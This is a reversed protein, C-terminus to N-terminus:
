SSTKLEPTNWKEGCQGAGRSRARWERRLPAPRPPLTSAWACACRHRTHWQALFSCSPAAQLALCDPATQHGVLFSFSGNYTQPEPCSPSKASAYPMEPSLRASAASSPKNCSLKGPVIVKGAMEAGCQTLRIDRLASLNGRWGTLNREYRPLSLRGLSWLGSHAWPFFVPSLPFQLDLGVQSEIQTWQTFAFVFM